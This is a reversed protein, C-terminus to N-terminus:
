WHHRRLVSSLWLCVISKNWNRLHSQCTLATHEGNRDWNDLRNPYQVRVYYPYRRWYWCRGFITMNLGRHLHYPGSHLLRLRDTSYSYQSPVFFCSLSIEATITQMLISPYHILKISVRRVNVIHIPKVSITKRKKFKSRSTLNHRGFSPQGSPRVKCM